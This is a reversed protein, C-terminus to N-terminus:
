DLVQVAAAPADATLGLEQELLNDFKWGIYLLSDEEALKYVADDAWQATKALREADARLYLSGVLCGCTQEVVWAHLAVQKITCAMYLLHQRDTESVEPHAKLAKFAIKVLKKRTITLPM